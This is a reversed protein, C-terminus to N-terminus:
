YFSRYRQERYNRTQAGAESIIGAMTHSLCPLNGLLYKSIDEDDFWESIKKNFLPSVIISEANDLNDITNKVALEAGPLFSKSIEQPSNM